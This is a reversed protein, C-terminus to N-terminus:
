LATFPGSVGVIGSAAGTSKSALCNFVLKASNQNGDLVIPVDGSAPAAKFVVLTEADCDVDPTNSENTPDENKDYVLFSVAKDTLKMGRNAKYQLVDSASTESPDMLLIDQLIELDIQSLNVELEYKCDDQYLETDGQQQNYTMSTTRKPTFKVGGEFTHLQVWGGTTPIKKGAVADCEVDSLMTRVFLLPTKKKDTGQATFNTFSM